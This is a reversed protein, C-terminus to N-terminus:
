NDEKRAAVVVFRGSGDDLIYSCTSLTLLQQGYEPTIGTDYLSDKKVQNVYLEYDEKSLNGGYEYYKFVNKVSEEYVRERCVAFVEYEGNKEVTDFLVIPHEKYFDEKKYNSLEGFMSGNNLHHGHIMINDSNLDCGVGIYIAGNDNYEGNFSRHLYYNPDDPRLMVPYDIKTGPICIWAAFDQNQRIIEKFRDKNDREEFTYETGDEDANTAPEETETQLSKDTEDVTERHEVTSSLKEYEKQANNMGMNLGVFKVVAFVLIIIIVALLIIKKNNKIKDLIKKM